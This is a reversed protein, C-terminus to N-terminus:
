APPNAFQHRRADWEEPSLNGKRLNCTPCLLQINDINDTGGLTIALIHDEHFRDPGVEVVLPKRCVDNACLGNQAAFLARVQKLTHRGVLKAARHRDRRRREHVRMVARHAKAWANAKANIQTRKRQKYAARTKRGEPTEQYARVADIVTKRHRLYSEAKIRAIREPDANRVNAQHERHCALCKKSTTGRESLHGNVCPVGTYYRPLSRQRAEARTIIAPETDM